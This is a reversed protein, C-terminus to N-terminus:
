GSNAHKAAIPVDTTPRASRAEAAHQSDNIRPIKRRAASASDPRCGCTLLGPMPPLPQNGTRGSTPRAREEAGHLAALTTLCLSCPPTIYLGRAHFPEHFPNKSLGLAALAALAIEQTIPAALAHLALSRAERLAYTMPEIGIPPEVRFM